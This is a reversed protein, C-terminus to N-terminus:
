RVGIIRLLNDRNVEYPCNKLKDPSKMIDNACIALIEPRVAETGCVDYYFQGLADLDAFGALDLIRRVSEPDAERLYGAQFYGVARGHAWGEHITVPYSLGHPLSTGTMSIAMGAITSAQMMAEYDQKTPEEASLIVDKGRAWLRLGKEVMMRSYETANTNIYSECFHGLADMVTNFWVKLTLYELYTADVLAYRPFIRHPISGKAHIDPRTLISYPTAESGTGCTTPIAVLPLATDDGKQYLFDAGQDPHAIMLAIAKAADLPSGGGIGIVMDVQERIGAEAGKMITDVSPNEEIQDFLVYEKKQDELASKVDNLAGCKVASTRGTVILAKNGLTCWEAAHLVVASKEQYIKTPMYFFM